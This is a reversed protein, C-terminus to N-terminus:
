ASGTHTGGRHDHDKRAGGTMRVRRLMERLGAIFGLTGLVFLFVPRTGLWRDLFHGALGGVIVTGALIFPLEMALAFQQVLRSTGRQQPEPHM